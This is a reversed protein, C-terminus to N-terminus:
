SLQATAATLYFDRDSNSLICGGIIVEAKQKRSFITLRSCKPKSKMRHNM